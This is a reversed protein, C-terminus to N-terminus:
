GSQDLICSPFYSWFSLLTPFVFGYFSSIYKHYANSMQAPTSPGMVYRPM